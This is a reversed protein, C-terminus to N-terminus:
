YLMYLRLQEVRAHLNINIIGLHPRLVSKQAFTSEMCINIPKSISKSLVSNLISSRPLMPRVSNIKAEALFGGRWVGGACAAGPVMGRRGGGGFFPSLVAARSCRRRDPDRVPAAFNGAHRPWTM